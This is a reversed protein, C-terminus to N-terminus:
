PTHAHPLDTHYLPFPKYLHSNGTRQWPNQEQYPTLLTWCRHSALPISAKIFLCGKHRLPPQSHVSLEGTSVLKQKHTKNNNIIPFHPACLYQQECLGSTDSGRHSPRIHTFLWWYVYTNPVSSPKEALASCTRLWLVMDRWGEWRDTLILLSASSLSWGLRRSYLDGLLLFM